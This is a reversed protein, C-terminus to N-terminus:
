AAATGHCRKWKKGSGCPCPDNRGIKPEDRVVPNLTQGPRRGARAADFAEVVVQAMPFVIRAGPEPIASEKVDEAMLEQLKAILHPQRELASPAVREHVPLEPPVAALEDDILKQADTLNAPLLRTLKKGFARDFMAWVLTAYFIAAEGFADGHEAKIRAAHNLLAPQEKGLRRALQTMTGKDGAQDVATFHAITDNVSEMSVVVNPDPSGM